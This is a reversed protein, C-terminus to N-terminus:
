PICRHKRGKQGEQDKGIKQDACAQELIQVTKICRRELPNETDGLFAAVRDKQAKQAAERHASLYNGVQYTLLMNGCCFSLIKKAEAVIYARGKKQVIYAQGFDAIRCNGPFQHQKKIRQRDQIPQYCPGKIM